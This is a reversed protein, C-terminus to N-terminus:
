AECLVKTGIVEQCLAYKLKNPKLHSVPNSYLLRCSEAVLLSLPFSLTRCTITGFNGSVKFKVGIRAVLSAQYQFATTRRPVSVRVQVCKQSLLRSLM